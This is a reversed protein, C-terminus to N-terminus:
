IVCSSTRTAAPLPLFFFRIARCLCIHGTKKLELSIFEYSFSFVAFSVYPSSSKQTTRPAPLVKIYFTTNKVDSTYINYFIVAYKSYCHLYLYYNKLYIQINTKKVRVCWYRDSKRTIFKTGHPFCCNKLSPPAQSASEHTAPIIQIILEKQIHEYDQLAIHLKM